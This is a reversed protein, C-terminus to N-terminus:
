EHDNIFKGGFLEFLELCQEHLCKIRINDSNVKGNKRFRWGPNVKSPISVKTQTGNFNPYTTTKRIDGYLFINPSDKFNDIWSYSWLQCQLNYWGGVPIDTKYNTNKIEVIIRDNTKINRYVVDPKGYFPEKNHTLNSIIFSTNHKSTIDEFELEWDDTLFNYTNRRYEEDSLDKNLNIKSKHHFDKSLINELKIGEQFKKQKKEGIFSKLVWGSFNSVINKDFENNKTESKETIQLLDYKSLIKVESSSFNDHFKSSLFNSNHTSKKKKKKRM